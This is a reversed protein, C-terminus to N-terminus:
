RASAYQALERQLPGLRRHIRNEEAYLALRKGADGEVAIKARVENLRLQLQAVQDTLPAVKVPDAVPKAQPHTPDFTWAQPPVVACGALLAVLVLSLASRKM